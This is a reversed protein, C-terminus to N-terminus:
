VSSLLLLKLLLPIFGQLSPAAPVEATFYKAMSAEKIAPRGAEALRAANYTLLRAAELQTAIQAIQHQMGQLLVVASVCLWLGAPIGLLM